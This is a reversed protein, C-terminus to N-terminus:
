LNALDSLSIDCAGLAGLLSLPSATGNALAELQEVGAEDVICQIEEITFPLSEVVSPDLTTTGGNGDPIMVGEGNGDGLCIELASLLTSDNPDAQGALYDALLGAGVGNDTLCLITETSVIPVDPVDIQPDDGIGSLGGLLSETDIECTAMAAIFDGLVSLDLATDPDNSIDYFSSIANEDLENFLCAIETATMGTDDFDSDTMVGCEILIPIFKSALEANESSEGSAFEAYDQLGTPGAADISCEIAAIGGIEGFEFLDLDSTELAIREDSSLCFIAQLSAVMSDSDIDSDDFFYSFDIEAMHSSICTQTTFSLEGAQLELQGIAISAVTEDSICSAMINLQQDSIGDTNDDARSVLRVLNEQGGVASAACRVETQPLANLFGVPDAEPDIAISATIPVPTPTASPEPTVTPDNSSSTGCAALATVAFAAIVILILRNGRILM